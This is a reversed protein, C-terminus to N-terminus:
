CAEGENKEFGGHELLFDRALAGFEEPREEHAFLKAGELVRLESQGAFQDRMARAREIPFFPDRDGWVLLVPAQIARHLSELMHFDSLDIHRMPALMRAGYETSRLIPEVFLRHFEGRLLSRDSFCGGFALSSERILRSRMSLRLASRGFPLRAVAAYFRIQSPVYGPVETNGMVLATVRSDRSTVLRAVFGGTDHAVLAYRSLGLMDVARRVTAAHAKFVLPSEATCITHGSGPLDFLHCTFRRALLPIIERFTASHLPWGHVFVVDPGAGTKWYALQSHGVDIFRHPAGLAPILPVEYTRGARSHSGPLSITSVDQM